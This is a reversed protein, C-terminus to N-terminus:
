AGAAVLNAVNCLIHVEVERVDGWADDTRGIVVVDACWVQSQKVGNPKAECELVVAVIVVLLHGEDPTQAEVAM